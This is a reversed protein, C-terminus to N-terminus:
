PALSPSDSENVPTDPHPRKPRKPLGHKTPQKRFSQEDFGHSLVRYKDETVVVNKEPASMNGVFMSIEQMCTSADWYKFFRWDKLSPNVAIGESHAVAVTIESALAQVYLDPVPAALWKQLSELNQARTGFSAESKKYHTTWAEVLTEFETADFVPGNNFVKESPHAEFVSSGKYEVEPRLDPLFAERSYGHYTANLRTSEVDLVWLAKVVRGGVCFAIPTVQLHKNKPRKEYAPSQGFASFDPVEDTLKKLVSLMDAPPMQVPEAKGHRDWSQTHRVLVRDNDFGYALARDYYDQFKSIIRMDTNYCASVGIYM